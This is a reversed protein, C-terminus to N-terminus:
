AVHSAARHSVGGRGERKSGREGDAGCAMQAHAHGNLRPVRVDARRRMRVSLLVPFAFRVAAGTFQGIM